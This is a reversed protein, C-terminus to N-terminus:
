PIIASQIESFEGRQGKHNQWRVAVYVTKGRQTEDFHLIHTSRTAPETQPLDEPRLPPAALVGSYIIAAYYNHPKAKVDPGQEEDWITVEVQRIDKPRMSFGPRTQPVPQSTPTTDKIHIEMAARDADTVPPDDLFRRKFPRIVGEAAHRAENKAITEPRLHPNQAPGWATYWDAYAAALKAFEAQPIHPWEPPVGTIKLNIYQNLHKFWPDFDKDPRPIYDTSM